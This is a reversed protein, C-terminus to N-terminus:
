FAVSKRLTSTRRVIIEKKIKHMQAELSTMNSVLRKVHKKGKEAMSMLNSKRRNSDAQKKEMEEIDGSDVSTKLSDTMKSKDSESQEEIRHIPM